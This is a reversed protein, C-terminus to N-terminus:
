KINRVNMSCSGGMKIKKIYKDHCYYETNRTNTDYVSESQLTQFTCRFGSDLAIKNLCVPTYSVLQKLCFSLVSNNILVAKTSWKLHNYDYMGTRLIMVDQIITM